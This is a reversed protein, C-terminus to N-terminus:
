PKAEGGAVSALRPNRLMEWVVSAAIRDGAGPRRPRFGEATLIDAVEQYTHGAARLRRARGFMRLGDSEPDPELHKGVIKLGRPARSVVEGKERKHRMVARTRESGAEREWTFVAALVNLVLRGGATRTDVSDEVSLLSFGAKESFYGDILDAWDRVSRSLRDLKAVVLGEAVGARLGALVAAVGPRELNKASIGVDDKIEVLELDHLQCYLMIKARQTAPSQDREDNSVRVYGYVRM